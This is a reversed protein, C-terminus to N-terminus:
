GAPEQPLTHNDYGNNGGTLKLPSCGRHMPQWEASINCEDPINSSPNCDIGRPLQQTATSGVKEEFTSLLDSAANNDIIIETPPQSISGNAPHKISPEKSQV